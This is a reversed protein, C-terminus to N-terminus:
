RRGILSRGLRRLFGIPGVNKKKPVTQLVWKDYCDAHVPRGNEDVKCQKVDIPKFCISCLFGRPEQM